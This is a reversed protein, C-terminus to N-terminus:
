SVQPELFSSISFDAIFSSLTIKMRVLIYNKTNNDIMNISRGLNYPVIKLFEVITLLIFPDVYDKRLVVNKALKGFSNFFLIGLRIFCISIYPYIPIIM